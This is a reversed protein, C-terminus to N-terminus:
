NSKKVRRPDGTGYIACPPTKRGFFPKQKSQRTFAGGRGYILKKRRM